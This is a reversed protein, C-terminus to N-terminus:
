ISDSDVHAGLLSLIPAASHSRNPCFSMRSLRSGERSSESKNSAISNTAAVTTVIGPWVYPLDRVEQEWNRVKIDTSLLENERNLVEVKSALEEHKLESKAQQNCQNPPPFASSMALVDILRELTDEDDSSSLGATSDLDSEEGRQSPHANDCYVVPIPVVANTGKGRFRTQDIRPGESDTDASPRRVFTDAHMPHISYNRSCSSSVSKRDQGRGIPPGESDTDANPRQRVGISLVDISSTSM